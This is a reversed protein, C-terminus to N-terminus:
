VCVVADSAAARVRQSRQVDHIARTSVRWAGEWYLWGAGRAVACCMRVPWDSGFSLTAGTTALARIPYQQEVREPPALSPAIATVMQSPTCRALSKPRLDVESWV